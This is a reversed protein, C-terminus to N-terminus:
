SLEHGTAEAANARSTELHAIVLDRMGAVNRAAIAEYLAVHERAIGHLDHHQSLLWRMRASLQTQVELLLENGALRTVVEHFRVGARRAEVAAGARAAALEEDVAARLQELDQRHHRQAALEFTLVELSTRVEILDAIDSATFERVIAWSRPRPTVLGEGVLAQLAERVPLRSVGLEVALDREVLKSGPARVGDVIENRLLETVRAAESKFEAQEAM